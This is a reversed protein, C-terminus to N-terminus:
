NKDLLKQGIVSSRVSLSICKYLLGGHMLVPPRFLSKVGVSYSQMTCM